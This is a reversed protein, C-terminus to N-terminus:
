SYINSTRFCFIVVLMVVMKMVMAMVVTMMVLMVVVMALMMVVKVGALRTMMGKDGIKGRPRVRVSM